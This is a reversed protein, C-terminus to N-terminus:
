KRGRAHTDVLSACAAKAVLWQRDTEQALADPAWMLFTDRFGHFYIADTIGVINRLHVPMVFRGSNDYGIDAANGFLANVPDADFEDGSLFASETRAAIMAAQRDLYDKGFGVLCNHVPHLSAFLLNQNSSGETVLKRFSAPLVFRDKDGKLSFGQGTYTVPGAVV